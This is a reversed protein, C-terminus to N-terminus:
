ADDAQTNKRERICDTSLACKKFVVENNGKGKGRETRRAAEDGAADAGTVAINEKAFMYSDSYDRLNEQLMIIKLRIQSNTTYKRRVDDNEGVWIIRRFKSPKDLANNLM